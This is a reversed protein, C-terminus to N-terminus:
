KKEKQNTIRKVEEYLNKIEINRSKTFVKNKKKKSDEHTYMNRTDRFKELTKKDGKSINLKNIYKKADKGNFDSLKSLYAEMLKNAEMLNSNIDKKISEEDQDKLHNIRSNIERIKDIFMEKVNSIINIQNIFTDFKYIIDELDKMELKLIKGSTISKAFSKLEFLKSEIDWNKFIPKEIKSYNFKYVNYIREYNKSSYQFKILHKILKGQDKDNNIVVGLYDWNNLFYEDIKELSLQKVLQKDFWNENAFFQIMEQDLVLNSQIMNIIFNGMQTILYKPAENILEYNIDNNEIKEKLLRNFIQNDEITTVPNNFEFKILENNDSLAVEDEVYNLSVVEYKNFSFEIDENKFVSRLISRNEIYEKFESINIENTVLNNKNSAKINYQKPDISIQDLIIDKFSRFGQENIYSKLVKESENNDPIILNNDITFGFTENKYFLNNNNKLYPLDIKFISYRPKISNFYKEIKNYQKEEDNIDEYQVRVYQPEDISDWNQPKRGKLEIINIEKNREPFNVCDEVIFPNESEIKPSFGLFKNNEVNDRIYQNLKYNGILSDYITRWKLDSFDRLPKDDTYEYYNINGIKLTKLILDILMYDYNDNINYTEKIANLFNETKKIEGKECAEVVIVLMSQFHTMNEITKLQANVQNFTYLVPLEIILKKDM